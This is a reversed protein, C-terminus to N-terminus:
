TCATPRVPITTDGQMFHDVADPSSQVTLMMRTFEDMDEPRAYQWFEKYDFKQITWRPQDRWARFFEVSTDAGWLHQSATYPINTNMIAPDPPESRLISFFCQFALGVSATRKASEEFLWTEWTAPSQERGARARSLIDDGGVGELYELLEFSWDRLTDLEREAAYRLGLDGDFVRISELVFLAHCRALKETPTTALLGERRVEAAAEQVAKYAWARTAPSRSAYAAAGCYAAMITRPVNTAYLRPHAFPLARTRVFDLHMSTFTHFMYGISSRPDHILLPDIAFCNGATRATNLVTVDRIIQQQPQQQQHLHAQSDPVTAEHSHSQHAQEFTTADAFSFSQSLTPFDAKPEGFGPLNWLGAMSASSSSDAEPTTMTGTGTGSGVSSCSSAGLLDAISFELSPDLALEPSSSAASINGGGMQNHHSHHNHHQQQQQGDHAHPAQGYVSALDSVDFGGMEFDDDTLETCVTNYRSESSASSSPVAANSNANANVNVTPTTTTTTTTASSSIRAASHALTVASPSSGPPVRQYVCDLGKAACRTCRPATKDCRRKGRVCANCSKQRSAATAHHSSSSSSSTPSGTKTVGRPMTLPEYTQM